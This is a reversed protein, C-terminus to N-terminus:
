EINLGEQELEKIIVIYEHAEKFYWEIDEENFDKPHKWKCRQKASEEIQKLRKIKDM